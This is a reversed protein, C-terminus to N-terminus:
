SMLSTKSGSKLSTDNTSTVVVENKVRVNSGMGMDIANGKVARVKHPVMVCNACAMLAASM